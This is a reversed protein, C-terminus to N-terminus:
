AESNGTDGFRKLLEKKLQEYDKEELTKKKKLFNLYTLPPGELYLWLNKIMKDDDWKMTSGASEYQRLWAPFEMKDYHFREPTAAIANIRHKRVSVTPGSWKEDHQKCPFENV